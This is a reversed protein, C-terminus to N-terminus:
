YDWANDEATGPTFYNTDAGVDQASISINPEDEPTTEPISGCFGGEAEVSSRWTRPPTYSDRAADTSTKEESSFGRTENLKNM